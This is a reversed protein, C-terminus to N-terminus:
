EVVTVGMNKATGMIMPIVSEVRMANTDPLKKLAIEKVQAMTIQGVKVTNPTGSGLEIGACCAVAHLLQQSTAPSAPRITSFPHKHDSCM